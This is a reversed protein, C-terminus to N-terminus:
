LFIINTLRKYTKPKIHYNYLEVGLSLVYKNHLKKESSYEDIYIGTSDYTKKFYKLCLKIHQKYYKFTIKKCYQQYLSAWVTHYCPCTFVSYCQCEINNIREYEIMCKITIILKKYLDKNVKNLVDLYLLEKTIGHIIDNISVTEGYKIDFIIKSILFRYDNVNCINVYFNVIDNINIPDFFKIDTDEYRVFQIELLDDFRKSKYYKIMLKHPNFINNISLVATEILNYVKERAYDLSYLILIYM